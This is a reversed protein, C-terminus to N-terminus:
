CGIGPTAGTGNRVARIKWRGDSMALRIFLHHRTEQTAGLTLRVNPGRRAGAHTADLNTKWDDHYDQAQLFYDEPLVDGTLRERLLCNLLEPAVYDRLEQQSDRLPDLNRDLAGLYWTYFNVVLGRPAVQVPAGAPSADAILLAAVFCLLRVRAAAKDTAISSM